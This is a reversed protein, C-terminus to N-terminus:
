TMQVRFRMARADLAMDADVCTDSAAFNWEEWRPLPSRKPLPGNRWPKPNEAEKRKQAKEPAKDVQREDTRNSQKKEKTSARDQCIDLDTKPNASISFNSNLLDLPAPLKKKPPSPESSTKIIVTGTTPADVTDQTITGSRGRGPKRFASEQAKTQARARPRATADTDGDFEDEAEDEDEEETGGNDKKEKEGSDYRTANHSFYGSRPRRSSMGLTSDPIPTPTRDSVQLARLKDLLAATLDEKQKRRTPPPQRKANRRYGDERKKQKDKPSDLESQVSPVFNIESYSIDGYGSITWDNVDEHGSTSAISSPMSLM